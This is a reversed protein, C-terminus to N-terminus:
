RLAKLIFKGMEIDKQSHTCINFFEVVSCFDRIPNRLARLSADPMSRDHDNRGARSTQDSLWALQGDNDLYGFVTVRNCRWFYTHPFSPSTVNSGSGRDYNAYEITGRAEEGRRGTRREETTSM